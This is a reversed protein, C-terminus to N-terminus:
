SAIAIGIGFALIGISSVVAVAIRWGGRQAAARFSGQRSRWLWGVFAVTVAVFAYRLFIPMPASPHGGVPILPATRQSIVPVKQEM